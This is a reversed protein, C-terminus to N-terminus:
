VTCNSVPSLMSGHHIQGRYNQSFRQQSM